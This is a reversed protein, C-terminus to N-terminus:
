AFATRECHTPELPIQHFGQQFDLSTYFCKNACLDLIDQINPLISQQPKTIANLGRFDITFRWSNADKKKVLVIPACFPSSSERIIEDEMMQAIQKEVEQRKELPVRYVERTPIPQNPMLDVRHRTHGNYCGLHNDPGVFANPHNRLVTQLKALQPKTLNSKSFDIDTTIGYNSQPMSHFKPLSNEWDAEPPTYPPNYPRVTAIQASPNSIPHANAINM